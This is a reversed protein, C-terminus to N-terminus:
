TSAFSIEVKESQLTASPLFTMISSLPTFSIEVKRVPPIAGQCVLYNDLLNMSDYLCHIVVINVMEKAIVNTFSTSMRLFFYIILKDVM